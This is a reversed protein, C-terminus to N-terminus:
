LYVGTRVKTRCKSLTPSRLARPFRVATFQSMIRMIRLIYGSQLSISFKMKIALSLIIAGGLVRDGGAEAQDIVGVADPLIDHVLKSALYINSKNERSQCILM